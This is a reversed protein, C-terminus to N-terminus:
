ASNKFWYYIIVVTTIWIGIIITIIIFDVLLNLNFFDGKQTNSIAVGACYLLKLTHTHHTPSIM